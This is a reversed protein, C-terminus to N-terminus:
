HVYGSEAEVVISRTGAITIDLAASARGLADFGVGAASTAVSVGSPARLVNGGPTGGAFSVALPTDCAAGAGAASARTFTLSGAAPDIAVCANRRQAVAVKRAYQIAAKAQDHFGLADFADRGVMRPIAVAALIGVVILVM